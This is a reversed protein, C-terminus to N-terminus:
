TQRLARIMCYCTHYLTAWCITDPNRVSRDQTDNGAPALSLACFPPLCHGASHCGTLDEASLLTSPAHHQGSAVDVQFFLTSGYRWKGMCRWPTWLSWSMRQKVWTLNKAVSHCNSNNNVRYGDTGIVCTPRSLLLTFSSISTVHVTLHVCLATHQCQLM